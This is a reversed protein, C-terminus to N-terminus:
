CPTTNVQHSSSYLWIQPHFVGYHRYCQECKHVIQNLDHESDHDAGPQNIVATGTPHTTFSRSRYLSLFSYSNAICTILTREQCLTAQKYSWGSRSYAVLRCRGGFGWGVRLVWGEVIFKFIM